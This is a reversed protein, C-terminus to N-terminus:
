MYIIILGIIVIIVYCPKIYCLFNASFLCHVWFIKLFNFIQNLGDRTVQPTFNGGPHDKMQLEM